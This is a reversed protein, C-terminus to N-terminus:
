DTQPPTKSIIEQNYAKIKENFRNLQTEYQKTKDNYASIKENLLARAEFSDAETKIQELEKREEMLQQYRADLDAKEKELAERSLADAPAPTDATVAGIALSAEPRTEEAPATDPEPPTEEVSEFRQASPRQEKPVQSLDDTWRKQGNEDVYKYIEACAPLVLACSIILFFALEAKKM